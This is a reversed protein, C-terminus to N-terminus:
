SLLEKLEEVATPGWARVADEVSNVYHGDVEIQSWPERALLDRAMAVIDGVQGEATIVLGNGNAGPGWIRYRAM